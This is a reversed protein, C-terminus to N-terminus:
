DRLVSLIGISISAFRSIVKHHNRGTLNALGRAQLMGSFRSSPKLLGLTEM